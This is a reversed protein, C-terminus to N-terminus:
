TLLLQLSMTRGFFKDSFGAEAGRELRESV